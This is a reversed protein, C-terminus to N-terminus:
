PPRAPQLHYPDIYVRFRSQRFTEHHLGRRGKNKELVSCLHSPKISSGFFFYLQHLPDILKQLLNEQYIPSSYSLQRGMERVFSQVTIGTTTIKRIGIPNPARRVYGKGQVFIDLPLSMLDAIEASFRSLLNRDLTKVYSNCEDCADMAFDEEGQFRLMKQKAKQQSLCLLAGAQM